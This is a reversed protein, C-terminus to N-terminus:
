IREQVQVKLTPLMRGMYDARASEQRAIEGPTNILTGTDFYVKRKGHPTDFWWHSILHGNQDETSHGWGASKNTSKKGAKVKRIEEVLRDRMALLPTYHYLKSMWAMEEEVAKAADRQKLPIAKAKTSGDPAAAFCSAATAIAVIAFNHALARM